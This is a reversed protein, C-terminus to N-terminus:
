RRASRPVSRTSITAGANEVDTKITEYSTVKRGAGSGITQDSWKLTSIM